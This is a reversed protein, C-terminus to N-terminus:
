PTPDELCMTAYQSMSMTKMTIGDRNTVRKYTRDSWDYNALEGQCLLQFAQAAVAAPLVLTGGFELVAYGEPSPKPMLNAPKRKTTTEDSMTTM